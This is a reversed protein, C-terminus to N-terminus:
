DLFAISEGQERFHLVKEEDGNSLTVFYETQYPDFDKVIKENAAMVWGDFEDGSYIYRLIPIPIQTNKEIFTAEILNGELDYEAEVDIASGNSTLVYHTNLLHDMNRLNLDLDRKESVYGSTICDLNKLYPFDAETITNVINASEKKTFIEDECDVVMGNSAVTIVSQAIVGTSFFLILIV